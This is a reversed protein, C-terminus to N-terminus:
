PEVEDDSNGPWSEAPRGDLEAVLQACLKNGRAITTSVIRMAEYVGPADLEDIRTPPDGRGLAESATMEHIRLTDLADRWRREDEDVLLRLYLWTSDADGTARILV